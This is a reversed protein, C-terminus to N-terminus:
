QAGTPNIRLIRGLIDTIWLSGYGYALTIGTQPLKTVPKGTVPDIRQLSLGSLWVGSPAIAIADVGDRGYFADVDVSSVVANTRPDIRTLTAIGENRVWVADPGASIALPVAGYTCPAPCPMTITATVQNTTPDIRLVTGARSNTVWVAQPGIAVGAPGQGFQAITAVVTGTAPDVRQVTEDQYSTVWVMGNAGALELPTVGLPVARVQHGDSPDLGVIARTANQTAWLLGNAAAVASPLDCRRVTFTPGMFSHVSGYPECRTHYLAQADGIRITKVVRNTAPDIKSITGDGTNPVWVAGAGILPTAPRAGVRITALVPGPSTHTVPQNSPSCATLCLLALLGTTRVLSPLNSAWTRESSM